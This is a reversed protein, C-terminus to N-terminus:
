PERPPPITPSPRDLVSKRNPDWMWAGSVTPTPRPHRTSSPSHSETGTIKQGLWPLGSIREKVSKEWAIAILLAVVVIELLTRM